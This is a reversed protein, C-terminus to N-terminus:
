LSGGQVIARLTVLERRMAHYRGAAAACRCAKCPGYPVGDTAYFAEVAKDQGCGHCPKM